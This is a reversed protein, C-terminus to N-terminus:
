RDDTRGFRIIHMRNGVGFFDSQLVDYERGYLHQVIVRLFHQHFVNIYESMLEDLDYGVRLHFTLPDKGILRIRGEQLWNPDSSIVEMIDDLDLDPLHSLLGHALADGTNYMVPRIDMGIRIGNLIIFSLLHRHISDPESLCRHLYMDTITRYRRQPECWKVSPIAIIRYGDRDCAVLGRDILRRM